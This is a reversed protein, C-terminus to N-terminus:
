AENAPPLDCIYICYILWTTDFFTQADFAQNSQVEYNPEKLRHLPPYLIESLPPPDLYRNLVSVRRIRALARWKKRKILNPPGVFPPPGSGWSGRGRSGGRHHLAEYSGGVVSLVELECLQWTIFLQIRRPINQGTM